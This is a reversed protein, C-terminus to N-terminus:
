CCCWCGMRGLLAADLARGDRWANRGPDDCPGAAPTPWSGDKEDWGSGDEDGDSLCDGEGCGSWSPKAGAPWRWLWDDVSKSRGPGPKLERGTEPRRESSDVVPAPELSDVLRLVKKRRGGGGGSDLEMESMVVLVAARGGSRWDLLKVAPSRTNEVLGGFPGLEPASLGFRFESSALGEAGNFPFALPPNELNMFLMSPDGFRTSIEAGELGTCMACTPNLKTVPSNVPSGGSHCRM